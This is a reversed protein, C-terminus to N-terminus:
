KQRHFGKPPNFGLWATHAFVQQVRALLNAALFWTQCASRPLSFRGHFDANEGAISSCGAEEFRHKLVRRLGLKM